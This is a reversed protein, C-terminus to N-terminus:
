RYRIRRVRGIGHCTPCHVNQRGSRSGERADGTYIIERVGTGGCESCNQLEPQSRVELDGANEAYYAIIWNRRASSQMLSWANEIEDLDEESKRSRKAMQQNRLWKNIKEAQAAREKDRATEPEEALVEAVGGKLADEEGLLWTGHGYSAPKWRLAKREIFFQRVQDEELDLWKKRMTETVNKVIEESLTEDVYSLAEEFNLERGAAAALRGMWSFWSRSVETRMYDARSKIIKDELRLRDSRLPSDEYTADFIALENLAEDFRKRRKLHDVNALFDVQEQSDVKQQVRAVIAQIEKTKFNPDLEAAAQYHELAHPFDLIRECYRAVEFQSEASELDSSRERETYLHEKSYIDLAPVQLGVIHNRVLRKPIQLQGGQTQYLIADETRGQVLGIVERGDALVLMEAPVLIEDGTIDVYGYLTRLELSQKDEVMSWPLTVLGGTDLRRFTLSETSHDEVVGWQFVGTRLRIMEVDKSASQHAEASLASAATLVACLLGKSLTQSVKKMNPKM